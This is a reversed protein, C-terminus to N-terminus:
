YLLTLTGGRTKVAQLVRGKPLARWCGRKGWYSGMERAVALYFLDWYWFGREIREPLPKGSNQWCQIQDDQGSGIEGTVKFVALVFKAFFYKNWKEPSLIAFHELQFTLDSSQLVSEQNRLVQDLALNTVSLSRKPEPEFLITYSCM